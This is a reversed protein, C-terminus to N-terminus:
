NLSRFFMLSWGKARSPMSSKILITGFLSVRAAQIAARCDVLTM